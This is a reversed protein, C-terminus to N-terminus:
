FDGTKDAVIACNGATKTSIIDLMMPDQTKESLLRNWL